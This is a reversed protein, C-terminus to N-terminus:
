SVLDPPRDIGYVRVDRGHMEITREFREGLRHAVAISRTNDPSILSIVRDADLARWAHDLAAAGGETAYGRGWVERALAWGVELGPWGSPRHLGVRGVMTGSAKEEVAWNGFGRLVWHGTFMAMSRWADDRSLTVGDGLFRMVEPDACMRAYADLDDDRWARLLLRETELTPAGM